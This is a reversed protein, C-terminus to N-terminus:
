AQVHLPVWKMGARAPGLWICTQLHSAVYAHWLVLSHELEGAQHCSHQACVTLSCTIAPPMCAPRSAPESCQLDQQLDM